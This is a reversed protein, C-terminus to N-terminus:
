GYHEVCLMDDHMSLQFNYVLLRNIVAPPCKKIHLTPNDSSPVQGNPKTYNIVVEVSHSEAITALALALHEKKM